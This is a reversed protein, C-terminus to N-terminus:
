SSRVHGTGSRVPRGAPPGSRARRRRRRGSRTAGSAMACTAHADTARGNGGSPMRLLHDLQAIALWTPARTGFAEPPCDAHPRSGSARRDSRPRARWAAWRRRLAHRRHDRGHMSSPSPLPPGQQAAPSRRSLRAGRGALPPAWRISRITQLCLTGRRSEIRIFRRPRVRRWRVGPHSQQRGCDSCEASTADPQQKAHPAPVNAAPQDRATGDGLDAIRHDSRRPSKLFPAHPGPETAGTSRPATSGTRPRRSQRM